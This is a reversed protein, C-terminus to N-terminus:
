DFWATHRDDNSSQALLADVVAASRVPISLAVWNTAASTSGNYAVVQFYTTSGATLGQITASTASGSVTGLLVAQTGNWYYIAYGTAGASPSWTLKGTTSSTATATLNGPPAITATPMVISVWNSSASSNANYATVYFYETTGPAQGGIDVSTAAAGVSAMQVAQAGNWEYVLYGTAGSTAAWAVHAVTSSTATAKVGTPASVTVIPAATTAQVWGSMTSGAANAAAVAFSYTTATSLNSVAFSTSGSGVSGILVAQGNQLEYINYSTAGTSATWSLNIQSTSVAQATLGTPAAPATLTTGGSNGYNALYPILADAVPSGRGTALDYGVGASQFQTSGTTIDHFDAAPATDIAALTQSAGNLTGLGALARGQDAIAVLAAWQPAGASTGGVSVWGTDPGFTDYVAM